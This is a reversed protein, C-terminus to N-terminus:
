EEDANHEEIMKINKMWVAFRYAEEEETEYLKNHKAKFNEFATAMESVDAPHFAMFAGTAALMLAGVIMIM